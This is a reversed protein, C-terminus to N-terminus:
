VKSLEEGLQKRFKSACKRFKFIEAYKVYMGGDTAYAFPSASGLFKHFVFFRILNRTATPMKSENVRMWEKNNAIM